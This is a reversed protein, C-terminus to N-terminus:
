VGEQQPIKEAGEQVKEEAKGEEAGDNDKGDKKEEEKGNEKKEKKEDKEKMAEAKWEERRKLRMEKRLELFKFREAEIIRRQKDKDKDQFLSYWDVYLHYTLARLKDAM